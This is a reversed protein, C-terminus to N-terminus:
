VLHDAFHGPEGSELAAALQRLQRALHDRWAGFGEAPASTAQEFLQSAALGAFGDASARLLDAAFRPADPSM